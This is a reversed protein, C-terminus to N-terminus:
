TSSSRRWRSDMSKMQLLPLAAKAFATFVDRRVDQDKRAEVMLDV